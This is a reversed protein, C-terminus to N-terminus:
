NIDVLKPLIPRYFWFLSFFCFLLFYSKKIFRDTLGFRKLLNLFTFNRFYMFFYNQVFYFLQIIISIYNTFDTWSVSFRKGACFTRNSLFYTFQYNSQYCKEQKVIPVNIKKPVASYKSENSPKGWGTVIGEKGIVDDLNTSGSWLCVPTLTARLEVDDKLILVAVDADANPNQFDPHVAFTKVTKIIQGPENWDTINHKGFACLLNESRRTEVCHAAATLFPCTILISFCVVVYRDIRSTEFDLQRYLYIQLRSKREGAVGGVM